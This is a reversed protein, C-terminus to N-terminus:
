REHAIMKKSLDKCLCTKQEFHIRPEILARRAINCQQLCHSIEEISVEVGTQLIRDLYPNNTKDSAFVFEM